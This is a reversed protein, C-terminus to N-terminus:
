SVSGGSPASTSGGSTAGSGGTGPAAFSVNSLTQLANNSSANALVPPYSEYTIITKSFTGNYDVIIKIDKNGKCINADFESISSTDLEATVKFLYGGNMVSFPSGKFEDSLLDIVMGNSPTSFTPTNFSKIAFAQDSNVILTTQNGYNISNSDAEIYSVNSTVPPNPLGSVGVKYYISYTKFNPIYSMTIDDGSISVNNSYIPDTITVYGEDVPNDTTNEYIPNNFDYILLDSLKLKRKTNGLVAYISTTIEYGADGIEFGYADGDYNFYFDFKIYYKEGKVLEGRKKIQTYNLDHTRSTYSNDGIFANGMIMNHSRSSETVSRYSGNIFDFKSLDSSDYPYFDFNEILADLGKTNYSHYDYPSKLHLGNINKLNYQKAM